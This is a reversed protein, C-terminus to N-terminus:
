GYRAMFTDIASYLKNLKDVVTTHDDSGAWDALEVAANIIPSVQEIYAHRERAIKEWAEAWSRLEEIKDSTSKDNM